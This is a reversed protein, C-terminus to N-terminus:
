VMKKRAHTNTSLQKLQTQSQMVGLIIAEWAGRDMSNELCSYQFPNVHGGGPFRELGPISGADRLDGASIRLKKVPTKNFM